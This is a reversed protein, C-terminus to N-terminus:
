TLLRDILTALEHLNGRYDTSAASDDGVYYTRMGVDAAPLDLSADDGVMMCERAEVGLMAATQLFYAHHPKTSHMIEYTTILDAITPDIGAWRVRHEVAARPFIPNTAIAMRLGAHRAAALAENAGPVPRATGRLGPFTEAYFREFVPWHGDIDVGTHIAFERAFVDKNAQGPHPRMVARTAQAIAPMVDAPRFGNGLLPITVAELAEFYRDLFARLEIDLLTGDLDFLIARM